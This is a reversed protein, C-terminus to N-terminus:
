CECYKRCPAGFMYSPCYQSNCKKKTGTKKYVFQMVINDNIKKNKGFTKRIKYLSNGGAMMTSLFIAYAGCAYSTDLQIPTNFVVVKEFPYELYFRYIGGQYKSPPEGFSDMVHLASSRIYVVMWHGIDDGGAEDLTNVVIFGNGCSAFSHPINGSAFVGKFFPQTEKQLTLINSIQEGDM